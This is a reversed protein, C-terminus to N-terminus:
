VLVVALQPHGTGAAMTTTSLAGLRLSSSSPHARTARASITTSSATAGVTTDRGRLGRRHRPRSRIRVQAQVSILDAPAVRHDMPSFYPDHDHRGTGAQARLDALRRTPILRRLGVHVMLRDHAWASSCPPRTSQRVARRCEWPVQPHAEVLVATAPAVPVWIQMRHRRGRTALPRTIAPHPVTDELRLGACPHHPGEWIRGQGTADRPAHVATPLISPNQLAQCAQAEPALAVLPCPDITRAPRRCRAKSLRDPAEYLPQGFARTAWCPGSRYLCSGLGM